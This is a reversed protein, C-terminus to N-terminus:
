CFKTQVTVVIGYCSEVISVMKQHHVYEMVTHSMKGMAKCRSSNIAFALSRSGFTVRRWIKHVAYVFSSQSKHM